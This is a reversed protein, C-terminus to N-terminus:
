KKHLAACDVCVRCPDDSTAGLRSKPIEPSELSCERCLVAGCAACHVRPEVSLPRVVCRGCPTNSLLSRSPVGGGGKKPDDGRKLAELTDARAQSPANGAVRRLFAGFDHCDKVSAEQWEVDDQFKAIAKDVNFGVLSLYALAEGPEREHTVRMFTKIAMRRRLAEIVEPDPLPVDCARMDKPRPVLLSYYGIVDTTQMRNLRRLETTDTGYRM